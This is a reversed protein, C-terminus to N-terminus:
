KMSLCSGNLLMLWGSTARAFCFYNLILDFKLMYFDLIEEAETPSQGGSGRGPRRGQVGSPPKQGWVRQVPRGGVNQVLNVGRDSNSFM